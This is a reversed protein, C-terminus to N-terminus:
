KEPVARGAESILGGDSKMGLSRTMRKLQEAFGTPGPQASQAAAIEALVGPDDIRTLLQIQETGVGLVLIAGPVQVMAISKKIGLSHMGLVKIWRNRGGAAAAPLFRRLWRQAAWLVLLVAALSLLMKLTAMTLDPTGNM